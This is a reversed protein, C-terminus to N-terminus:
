TEDAWASWFIITAGVQANCDDLKALLNRQEEGVAEYWAETPKVMFKFRAQM